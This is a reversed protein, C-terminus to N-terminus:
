DKLADIVTMLSQETERSPELTKGDIIVAKMLRGSAARKADKVARWATDLEALVTELTNEFADLETILRNVAGAGDLLEQSAEQRALRLKLWAVHLNQVKPVLDGAKHGANAPAIETAKQM